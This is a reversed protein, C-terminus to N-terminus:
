SENAAPVWMLNVRRALGVPWRGTPLWVTVRVRVRVRVWVWCVDVDDDRVFGVRVGRRGATHSVKGEGGGGSWWRARAGGGRVRIGRSQGRRTAAIGAGVASGASGAAKRHTGDGSREAGSGPAASETEAEGAGEEEWRAEKRGRRPGRASETAM